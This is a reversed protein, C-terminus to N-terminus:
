GFCFRGLVSFVSRLREPRSSDSRCVPRLNCGSWDSEEGGTIKKTRKKMWSFIFARWGGAGGIWGLWSVREL